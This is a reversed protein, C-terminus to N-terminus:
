GLTAVFLGAPKDAVTTRVAPSPNKCGGTTEPLTRDHRRPEDADSVQQVAHPVTFEANEPRCFLRLLTDANRRTPACNVIHFFFFGNSTQRVRPNASATRQRTRHSRTRPVKQYIIGSFCEGFNIYISQHVRNIQFISGYPSRLERLDVWRNTYGHSKDKNPKGPLGSIPLVTNNHFSLDAIPPMPANKLFLQPSEQHYPTNIRVMVHDNQDVTEHFFRRVCCDSTLVVVTHIAAAFLNSLTVRIGNENSKQVLNLKRNKIKGDM